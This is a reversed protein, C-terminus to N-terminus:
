LNTLKFQKKLGRNKENLFLELLFSDENETHVEFGAVLNFTKRDCRTGLFEFHNYDDTEVKVFVERALTEVKDQQAETLTTYERSFTM